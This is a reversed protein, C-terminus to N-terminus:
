ARGGDLFVRRRRAGARRGPGPARAGAGARVATILRNGGEVQRVAVREQFANARDLAGQPDRHEIDSVTRGLGNGQARSKEQQFVAAYDGLSQGQVHEARGSARHRSAIAQSPTRLTKGARTTIDSVLAPLRGDRARRDAGFQNDREEVKRRSRPGSDLDARVVNQESALRDLPREARLWIGPVTTRTPVWPGSASATTRVPPSVHITLRTAGATTCSSSLARSAQHMQDDLCSAATHKEVIANGLFGQRPNRGKVDRRPM